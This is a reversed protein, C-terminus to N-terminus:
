GIDDNRMERKHVHRANQAATKRPHDQPPRGPPREAPKRGLRVALAAHVAIRRWGTADPHWRAAHVQPRDGCGSRYAARHPESGRRVGLVPRQGIPHDASAARPIAPESFRRPVRAINHATLVGSILPDAYLAGVLEIEGPGSVAARRLAGGAACRQWVLGVPGKRARRGDRRPPCGPRGAQRRASLGAASGSGTCAAALRPFRLSRATPRAPVARVRCRAWTGALPRYGQGVPRSRRTTVRGGSAPAVARRSGAQGSPGRGSPLFAEALETTRVGPVYGDRRARGHGQSRAGHAPAASYGGTRSRATGRDLDSYRSEAPVRIRM